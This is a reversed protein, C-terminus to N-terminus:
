PAPSEALRQASAQSAPPPHPQLEDLLRQVRDQLHRTQALGTQRDAPEELLLPEGFRIM